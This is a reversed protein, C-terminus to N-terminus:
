IFELLGPWLSERGHESVFALNTPDGGSALRAVHAGVLACVLSVVPWPLNIAPERGGRPQNPPGNM